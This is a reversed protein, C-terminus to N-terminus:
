CSTRGRLPRINVAIHKGIFKRGQQPPVQIQKLAVYFFSAAEFALSLRKEM